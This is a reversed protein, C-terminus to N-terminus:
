WVTVPQDAFVPRISTDIAVHWELFIDEANAIAMLMGLIYAFKIVSVGSFAM